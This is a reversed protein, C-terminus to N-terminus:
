FLFIERLDLWDPLQILPIVGYSVASKWQQGHTHRGQNLSDRCAQDAM